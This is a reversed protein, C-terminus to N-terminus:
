QWFVGTDCRTDGCRPTLHLCSSNACGAKLSFSSIHFLNKRLVLGEIEPSKRGAVSTVQTHLEGAIQLLLIHEVQQQLRLHIFLEAPVAEFPAPLPCTHQYMLSTCCLFWNKNKMDHILGEVLSRALQNM